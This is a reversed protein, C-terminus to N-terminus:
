SAEPPAVTSSACSLGRPCWECYRGGTLKPPRGGKLAAASRAASIVRDAAHVLLEENVDESQWEGSELFLTAVRYPPVGFRLTMLLAYFRM